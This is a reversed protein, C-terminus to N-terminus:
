GRGSVVMGIFRRITALSHLHHHLSLCRLPLGLHIHGLGPSAARQKAEVKHALPKIATGPPKHCSVAARVRCDIRFGSYISPTGPEIQKSLFRSHIDQEVKHRVSNLKDLTGFLVSIFVFRAAIVQAVYLAFLIKRQLELMDRSLCDNGTM